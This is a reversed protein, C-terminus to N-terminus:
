DLGDHLDTLMARHQQELLKASRMPQMWQMALLVILLLVAVVTLIELM